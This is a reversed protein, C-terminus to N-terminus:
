NGAAEFTKKLRLDINKFLISGVVVNGIANMRGVFTPGCYSAGTGLTVIKVKGCEEVLYRFVKGPYLFHGPQTYNTFTLNRDDPFIWVNDYIPSHLKDGCLQNDLTGDYLARDNIMFPSNYLRYTACAEVEKPNFALQENMWHDRTRADVFESLFPIKANNPSLANLTALGPTLIDSIYKIGGQPNTEFNEPKWAAIKEEVVRTVEDRNTRNLFIPSLNDYPFDIPTPANLAVNSKILKYIYQANCNAGNPGEQSCVDTELKYAHYDQFSANYLKLTEEIRNLGPQNCSTYNVSDISLPYNRGLTSRMIGANTAIWQVSDREAVGGLINNSILANNATTYLTYSNVSNVPGIGNYVILGQTTGIFVQGLKNGWIANPNFTTGAPIICSLTQSNLYIWNVGRRVAFGKGASITTWVDGNPAAYLGNFIGGAPIGIDAFSFSLGTFNGFLDYKLLRAPFFTGNKATYAAVNAWVGTSDAAVSYVNRAQPTETPGPNCTAAPYPFEVPDINARYEVWTGKSWFTNSNAAKFSITGPTLIYQDGTNIQHYKHASWIGGQIDVALGATNLTGIGDRLLFDFCQANRDPTLHQRDLTNINIREMGGLSSTLGGRGNHGVWVNGSHDAALAQINFQDTGGIQSFTANANGAKNLYYVGSVNGAWVNYNSDITICTFSQGANYTTVQSRTLLPICLLILLCSRM